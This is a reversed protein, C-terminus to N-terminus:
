IHLYALGVVADCSSASASSNSGTTDTCPSHSWRTILHTPLTSQWLGFTWALVAGLQQVIRVHALFFFSFCGCYTAETLREDPPLSSAVKRCACPAVSRVYTHLSASSEYSIDSCAWSATTRAYTAKTTLLFWGGARRLQPPELFIHGENMYKGELRPRKLRPKVLPLWVPEYCSCWMYKQARNLEASPLVM